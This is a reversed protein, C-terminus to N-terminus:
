LPWLASAQQVISDSIFGRLALMVASLGTCRLGIARYIIGLVEGIVEENVFAVVESCEFKIYEAV